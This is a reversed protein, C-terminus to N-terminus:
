YRVTFGLLYRKDTKGSRFRIKFADTGALQVRSIDAAKLELIEAGRGFLSFQLAQFL